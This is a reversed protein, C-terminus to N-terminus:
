LHAFWMINNKLLVFDILLITYINHPLSNRTYGSPVLLFLVNIILINLKSRFTLGYNTYTTIAIVLFISTFISIDDIWCENVGHAKIGIDISFAIYLLIIIM